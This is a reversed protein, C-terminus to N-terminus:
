EGSAPGFPQQRRDMEKSMATVIARADENRTPSTTAARPEPHQDLWRREVGHDDDLLDYSLLMQPLEGATRVAPEAHASPDHEPHFFVHRVATDIVMSNLGLVLGPHLKFRHDSRIRREGTSGLGPLYLCRHPDMPMYIDWFQAARRQDSHDQGNLM